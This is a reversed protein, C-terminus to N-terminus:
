KAFNKEGSNHQFIKAFERINKLPKLATKSNDFLLMFTPFLLLPVAGIKAIVAISCPGQGSMKGTM